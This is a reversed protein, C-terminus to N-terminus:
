GNTYAKGRPPNRQPGFLIGARSSFGAAMENLSSVAVQCDEGLLGM